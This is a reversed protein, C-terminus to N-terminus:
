HQSSLSSLPMVLLPQTVPPPPRPLLSSSAASLWCWESSEVCKVMVVRMDTVSYSHQQAGDTVSYPRSSHM